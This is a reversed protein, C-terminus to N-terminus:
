ARLALIVLVVGFCLIFGSLGLALVLDFPDEGFLWDQFRRM